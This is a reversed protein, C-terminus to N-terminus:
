EVGACVCVCVPIICLPKIFMSFPLRSWPEETYMYMFVCGRLMAHIHMCAHVYKELKM